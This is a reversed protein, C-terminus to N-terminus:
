KKEFQDNVCLFDNEWLKKQNKKLENYDKLLKSYLEADGDELAQASMRELKKSQLTFSYKKTSLQCGAFIAEPDM